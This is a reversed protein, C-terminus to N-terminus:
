RRAARAKPLRPISGTTAPEPKVPVGAPAKPPLPSAAPDPKGKGNAAAKDPVAKKSAPKMASPKKPPAAAAGKGKAAAGAPALPVSDPYRKRMDSLFEDLTDAGAVTRAVNKFEVASTGVPATVVEFAHRDPTDAM